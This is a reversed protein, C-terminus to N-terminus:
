RRRRLLFWTGAGLAATVSVVVVWFLPKKYLATPKVPSTPSTVPPSLLQAAGQRFWAAADAAWTGLNLYATLATVRAEDSAPTSLITQIGQPATAVNVELASVLSKAAQIAIRSTNNDFSGSVPTVPSKVGQLAYNAETIATLLDSVASDDGLHLGGSTKPKKSTGRM